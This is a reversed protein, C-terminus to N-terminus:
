AVEDPYEKRYEYRLIDFATVIGVLEHAENCIPIAHFLNELLVEAASGVPDDIELFAVKRTMVDSVKIQAYEEFSRNLKLLDWSTIIGVLKKGEVVPFHHVRSKKIIDLAASLNDNVDLAIVKSSMITNVTENMM